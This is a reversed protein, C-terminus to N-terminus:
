VIEALYNNVLHARFQLKQAPSFASFDYDIYVNGAQIESATNLEPDAWAQGGAIVGQAKLTAIFNNVSGVVDELYTSTINRDIAWMHADVISAAIIDNIIVVNKFKWKPDDSLTENGWVRFGNRRITTTVQGGNLVEADTAPNGLEFSVPRTTGVIGRIEQNSNSHHPGKENHIRAMVGAMRSSPAVVIDQATEVDFVVHWPDCVEGRRSGFEGRYALAAANTTDPGDLFFYGGMKDAAAALADGVSKQNSFAPAILIRPKLGTISESARLAELGTPIGDVGVKGIVNAMTEEPTAGEAVVVVIVLAGFQDLIGDMATPLTGTTGLAAAATRSGLIAVPTNLPFKTADAEPATGVLGIIGTTAMQVPRTGGDIEVFEIGHKIM